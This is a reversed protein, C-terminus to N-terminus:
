SWTASQGSRRRTTRVVSPSQKPAKTGVGTAGEPGLYKPDRSVNRKEEVAPRKV